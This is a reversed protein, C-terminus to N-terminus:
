IHAKSRMHVRVPAGITPSTGTSEHQVMILKCGSLYFLCVVGTFGILKKTAWMRARAMNSM